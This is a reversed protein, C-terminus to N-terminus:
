RKPPLGDGLAGASPRIGVGILKRSGRRSRVIALADSHRRQDVLSLTQALEALKYQVEKRLNGLVRKQTTNDAILQELSALTQPLLALASRYSDLFRADRTLLYGRQGNEADKLTSLTRKLGSCCKEPIFSGM